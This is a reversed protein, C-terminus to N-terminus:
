VEGSNRFKTHRIRSRYFDTKSACLHCTGRGTRTPRVMGPLPGTNSKLLLPTAQLMPPSCPVPLTNSMLAPLLIVIVHFSTRGEAGISGGGNSKGM